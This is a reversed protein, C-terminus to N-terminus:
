GELEAKLWAIQSRLAEMSARLDAARHRAAQFRVDSADRAFRAAAVAADGRALDGAITAPVSDARSRLLHQALLLHYQREAEAMALGQARIDDNVSAMERGLADMEDLIAQPNRM